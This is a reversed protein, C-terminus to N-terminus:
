LQVRRSSLRYINGTNNRRLATAGIAFGFNLGFGNATGYTAGFSLSGTPVETVAVKVVAQDASNGSRSEVTVEDFFGLARIREAAQRIESPNLPDGEATRFQRRVVQDPTTTNGEIDIREVFVREGRVLAFTM